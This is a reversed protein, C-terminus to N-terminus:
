NRTDESKDSSGTNSDLDSSEPSSFLEEFLDEDM